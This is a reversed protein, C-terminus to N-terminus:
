MSWRQKITEMTGDHKMEQIIQNIQEALQTAERAVAFASDEATDPISFLTFSTTDKAILPQLAHLSSVYAEANGNRVALVADAPTALRIVNIGEIRSIYLDATYGDNVVVKKGILDTIQTIPTHTALQLVVLPESTIVPTTFLVRQAREPTPTMAAALVHVDGTQLASLLTEFPMDKVVMKKGMRHAIERAVDIDFGVIAGAQMFCFPPYEANTGVIFLNESSVPIHSFKYRYMGLLLLTLAVAAYIKHLLKM